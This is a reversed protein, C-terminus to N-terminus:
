KKKSLADAKIKDQIMKTSEKLKQFSLYWQLLMVAAIVSGLITNETVGYRMWFYLLVISLAGVKEFLVKKSFYSTHKLFYHNYTILAMGLISIFPFLNNHFISLATFM